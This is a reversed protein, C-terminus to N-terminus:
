RAAALAPVLVDRAHTAVWPLGHRTAWWAVRARGPARAPLPQGAPVGIDLGASRLLDAAAAALVAHAGANPHLRDVAWAERRRLEPVADLDLVHVVGRAGREAAARDVAANVAAVREAAQERLGRPLPLHRCPDHLRGLLVTSGTRRLARVVARLDDDVSEPRFGGRAVDNLGILLTALHPEAAVAVPLQHALVDRVKSGAVALPLFAAGPVAAALLAPWTRDLPVALGVGEGCSTSDGLSVVRVTM